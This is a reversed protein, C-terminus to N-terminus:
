DKEDEDIRAFVEDPSLYIPKRAVAFREKRSWTGDSCDWGIRGDPDVVLHKSALTSSARIRVQLRSQRDEPSLVEIAILQPNTFVQKIPLERRFVSFDPIRVRRVNLLTQQEQVSRM